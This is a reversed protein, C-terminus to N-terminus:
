RERVIWVVAAAGAEHERELPCELWPVDLRAGGAGAGLGGARAGQLVEGGRARAEVGGGGEGLGLGRALLDGGRGVALLGRARPDGGHELGVGDAGGLGLVERVGVDGPELHARPPRLRDELPVDGHYTQPPRRTFEAGSRT